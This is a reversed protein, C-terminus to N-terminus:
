PEFVIRPIAPSFLPGPTFIPVHLDDYSFILKPWIATTVEEAQSQQIQSRAAKLAHNHVGGNPHSARPQNACEADIVARRRRPM